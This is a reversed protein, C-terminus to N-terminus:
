PRAETAGRCTTDHGGGRMPMTSQWAKPDTPRAKILTRDLRLRPSPQRGGGGGVVHQPPALRAIQRRRAHCGPSRASASGIPGTCCLHQTWSGRRPPPEEVAEALQPHDPGRYRWGAESRATRRKRRPTPLRSARRALLQQIARLAMILRPWCISGKWGASEPIPPKRERQMWCPSPAWKLLITLRRSGGAAPSVRWCGLRLRQAHDTGRWRLGPTPQPEERRSLGAPVPEVVSM